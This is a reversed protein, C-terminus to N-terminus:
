RGSIGRAAQFRFDETLAEICQEGAESLCYRRASDGVEEGRLVFNKDILETMAKVLSDRPQKTFDAIEKATKSGDMLAALCLLEEDSFWSSLSRPDWFERKVMMLLGLVEKADREVPGKIELSDGKARFATGAQSEVLVDFRGGLATSYKVHISIRSDGVTGECAARKLFRGKSISLISIGKYPRTDGM